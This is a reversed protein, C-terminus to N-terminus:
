LIGQQPVLMVCALVAGAIILCLFLIFVHKDEIQGHVVHLFTPPRQLHGNEVSEGEPVQVLKITKKSHHHNRIISSSHGNPHHHHDVEDSRPAYDNQDLYGVQIGGKTSKAGDNSSVQYNESTNNAQIAIATETDYNPVIQRNDDPIIQTGLHHHIDKESPKIHVPVSDLSDILETAASAHFVRESKDSYDRHPYHNHHLHEHSGKHNDKEGDTDDVTERFGEHTPHSLSSKM